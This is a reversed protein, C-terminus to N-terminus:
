RVEQVRKKEAEEAEAATPQKPKAAAERHLCNVFYCYIYIFIFIFIVINICIYLYLNM